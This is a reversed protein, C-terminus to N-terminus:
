VGILEGLGCRVRVVGLLRGVLEDGACHRELYLCIARCEVWARRAIWWVGRCHPAYWFALILLARVDRRGLLAKFGAEMFGIFALDRPMVGVACLGELGGHGCDKSRTRTLISVARLYPNPHEGDFCSGFGCLEVFEEAIEDVSCLRPQMMLERYSDALVHFVSDPRVPNTINWIAKKKISFDMWQLDDDSSITLPWSKQISPAEASTLTSIGLM